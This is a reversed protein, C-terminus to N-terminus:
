KEPKVSPLPADNAAGAVKESDLPQLSWRRVEAILSDIAVPEAGSAKKALIAVSLCMPVLLNEPEVYFRDLGEAIERNTLKGPVYAEANTTNTIGIGSSFGVVFMIKEGTSLGKWLRGNFLGHTETETGVPKADNPKPQPEPQANATASRAQNEIQLRRLEEAKIREQMQFNRIRQVEMMQQIPDYDLPKVRLAISPDIQGFLSGAALVFVAYRLM